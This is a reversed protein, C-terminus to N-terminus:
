YQKNFKKYLLFIFLYSLVNINIIIKGILTTTMFQKYKANSYIFSCILFINIIVLIVFIIINSLNQQRQKEKKLNIKTLIEAYKNLLQGVNGGNIHCNLLLTLFNNIIDINIDKKLNEFAQVISIGKQISINFKNIYVFLDEPINAKKFAILINNTSYVYNKLTLIYLPFNIIIKEKQLKYLQQIFFYPVFFSIISILIATSFINFFIYSIFFMFISFLISILLIIFISLFKYKKNGLKKLEFIYFQLKSIYKLKKLKEKIFSNNKILNNYKNIVKSKNLLIKFNYICLM